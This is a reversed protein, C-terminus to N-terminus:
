LLLRFFTMFFRKVITRVEQRFRVVNKLHSKSITKIARILKTSKNMARSVSGYTGSRGQQHSCRSLDFEGRGLTKKEVDYSDSLLKGENDLIFGSRQITVM